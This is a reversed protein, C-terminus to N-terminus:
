VWFEKDGIQVKIKQRNVVKPKWEPDPTSFSQTDQNWIFGEPVEKGVCRCFPHLADITALWDDQKRGINSGNAKIESLKFIIPQSGIGNTLYLRICHKCASPFVQKYYLPDKDTGEYKRELEAVKGQEFANQSATEIIRDFDRNWDGTKESITNAIERVTKKQSVGEKLEQALFEQQGELTQNSIIGNVDAFIRGNLSKLSTFAQAKISNLVAKQKLTTPIYNGSKVYDKLSHYNLKNTEIAGISDVLMGLHFSLDISGMGFDKPMIWEGDFKGIIGHKELVQKDAESLFDAGLEKGILVLQNREIIEILEKVKDSSLLM